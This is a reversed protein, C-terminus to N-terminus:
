LYDIGFADASGGACKACTAGYGGQAVGGARVGGPKVRRDLALAALFYGLM